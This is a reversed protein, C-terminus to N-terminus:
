QNYQSLRAPDKILVRGREVRVLNQRKLEQLLRSLTEPQMALRSAVLCKPLPLEVEVNEAPSAPCLDLLYRVLRDRANQLTMIELEHFREVARGAYHKLANETYAPRQRLMDRYAQIPIMLVDSANIAEAYCAYRAPDAYIMVEAFCDGPALSDLTRDVGTADLRYLRLRGTVVFYFYQAPTDQRYLLERGALRAKRVHHSMREFDADSFAEFLPHSRLVAAAPVPPQPGRRQSVDAHQAMTMM